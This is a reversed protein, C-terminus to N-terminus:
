TPAADQTPIWAFFTNGPGPNSRVGIEGGHFDMIEKALALGFGQRQVHNDLVDDAKPYKEFVRERDQDPISRGAHEVEILVGEDHTRARLQVVGEDTVALSAIFFNELVQSLRERDVWATPLTEAFEATLQVEPRREFLSQHQDIAATLVASLEHDKRNWDLKGADIKSLDLVDNILRTLRLGEDQMVQLNKRIQRVARQSKSSEPVYRAMISSEFRKQILRAFGLISTLPTRLEHSVTSTFESKVEILERERTVDRMLLVRGVAIEQRRVETSNCVYDRTGQQTQVPVEFRQFDPTYQPVVQRIHIRESGHPRQPIGFAQQAAPNARTVSGQLDLLLVPEKMNSFIDQAASDLDLRIWGLFQIAVLLLLSRIGGIGLSVVALTQRPWGLQSLGTNFVLVLLALFFAFFIVRMRRKAIGAPSKRAAKWLLICGYSYFPIYVVGFIATPKQVDAFIEYHLFWYVLAGTGCLLCLRFMWDVPRNLLVYWFHMCAFLFAIMSVYVIRVWQAEELGMLLGQEAGHAYTWLLFAFSHAWFVCYFTILASKVRGRSPLGLLYALLASQFLVNVEFISVLTQPSLEVM